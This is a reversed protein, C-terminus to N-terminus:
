KRVSETILPSKPELIASQIEQSPQNKDNRVFEFWMKQATKLDIDGNDLKVKIEQYVIEKGEKNNGKHAHAFGIYGLVFLLFIQLLRIKYLIDRTMM